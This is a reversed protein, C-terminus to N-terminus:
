FLSKAKWFSSLEKELSNQVEEPSRGADVTRIRAPNQTALERYVARVREHFAGEEGEFRDAPSREGMRQRATTVSVDFLFTLDPELGQQVWTALSEIRPMSVGRGGGQYARTADTFRDCLVWQGQELAPRIIRVIHEHRAAFMLLVETEADMRSTRDLLLQRIAEGIPTGGPERTVVVTLGRAALWAQVTRLHTSKGAGDIGEFTIFRGRM